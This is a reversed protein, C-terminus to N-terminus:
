FICVHLLSVFFFCTKFSCSNVFFPTTISAIEVLVSQHTGGEGTSMRM